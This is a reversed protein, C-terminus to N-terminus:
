ANSAEWQQATWQIWENVENAVKQHLYEQKAVYFQEAQERGWGTQEIVSEVSILVFTM